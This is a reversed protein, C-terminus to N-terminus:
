CMWNNVALRHVLTFADGTLLGFHVSEVDLDQHHLSLMLEDLVQLPSVQRELRLDLLESLDLCLIVRCVLMISAAQSAQSFAIGVRHIGRMLAGSMDLWCTKCSLHCGCSRRFGVQLHEILILILWRHELHDGNALNFLNGLLLASLTAQLPITRVSTPTSSTFGNLTARILSVIRAILAVVVVDAPSCRLIVAVPIIVADDTIPVSRRWVHIPAVLVHRVWALAIGGPDVGSGGAIVLVIIVVGSSDVLTFVTASSTSTMLITTLGVIIVCGIPASGFNVGVLIRLVM